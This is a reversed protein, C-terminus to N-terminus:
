SCSFYLVNTKYYVFVFLVVVIVVAAATAAALVVVVIFMVISHVYRVKVYCTWTISIFERFWMVSLMLLTHLSMHLLYVARFM